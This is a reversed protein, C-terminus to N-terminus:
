KGKWLFSHDIHGKKQMYEWIAWQLAFPFYGLRNSLTSHKSEIEVYKKYTLKTKDIGYYKLMWTDLCIFDWKPFILALFFSIKALSIGSINKLLIERLDTYYNLNRANLLSNETVNWSQMGAYAQHYLGTKAKQLEWYKINEPIRNKFKKFAKVSTRFQRHVTFVSFIYRNRIQKLAPNDLLYIQYNYFTRFKSLYQYLGMEKQDIYTPFDIM